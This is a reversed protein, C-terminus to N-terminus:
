GLLNIHGDVIRPEEIDELKAEMGLLSKDKFQELFKDLDAKRLKLIDGFFELCGVEEGELHRRYTPINAKMWAIAARRSFDTKWAKIIREKLREEEEKNMKPM